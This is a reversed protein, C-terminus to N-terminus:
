RTTEKVLLHSDRAPVVQRDPGQYLIDARHLGPLRHVCMLLMCTCVCIYTICQVLSVLIEM